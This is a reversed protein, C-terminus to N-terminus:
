YAARIPLDGKGLELFEHDDGCDKFHVHVIRERYEHLFAVPDAGGDALHATDAALKVLEPDTAEMAEKIDEM